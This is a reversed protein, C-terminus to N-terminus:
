FSEKLHVEITVRRVDKKAKHEANHSRASNKRAATLDSVSQLHHLGHDVEVGVLSRHHPQLGDVLRPLEGRQFPELHTGDGGKQETRKGHARGEESRPGHPIRTATKTKAGTTTRWTLRQWRRSSNKRNPGVEVSHNITTHKVKSALGPRQGRGGRFPRPM